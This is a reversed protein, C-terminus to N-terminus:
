ACPLRPVCFASAHSPPKGPRALSSHTGTATFTRPWFGQRDATYQSKALMLRRIPPARTNVASRERCTDTERGTRWLLWLAVFGRVGAGCNNRKGREVGHTDLLDAGIRLELGDQLCCPVLEHHDVEVGVPGHRGVGWVGPM